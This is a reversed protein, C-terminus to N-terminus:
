VTTDRDVYRQRKKKERQEEKEKEFLYHVIIMLFVREEEWARWLISCFAGGEPLGDQFLKV